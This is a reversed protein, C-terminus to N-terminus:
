ADHPAEDSRSYRSIKDALHDFLKDVNPLSRLRLLLRRATLEQEPTVASDPVEGEGDEGGRGDHFLLKAINKRTLDNLGLKKREYQNGGFRDDGLMKRMLFKLVAPDQDPSIERGGLLDAKPKPIHQDVFRGIADKVYDGAGSAEKDRAQEEPSPTRTDEIQSAYSRGGEGSTERDASEFRSNRRASDRYRFSARNMLYTVPDSSLHSDEIIEPRAMYEMVATTLADDAGQPDRHRNVFRKRAEGHYRKTFEGFPKMAADPLRQDFRGEANRQIEGNAEARLMADRFEKLLGMGDRHEPNAHHEVGPLARAFASLDRPPKDLQTDSFSPSKESLSQVSASALAPAQTPAPQPIRPQPKIALEPAQERAVAQAKASNERLRGLLSGKPAAAVPNTPAPAPAPLLETQGPLPAKQSAKVFSATAKDLASGGTLLSGQTKRAVGQDPPKLSFPSDPAEKPKPLELGGGVPGPEPEGGGGFDFAGQGDAPKRGKAYRAVVSGDLPFGYWRSGVHLVLKGFAVPIDAVSINPTPAGKPLRSLTIHPVWGHETAVNVGAHRFANIVHQRVQALGPVDLLAVLADNRNEAFASPTLRGLGSTRGTLPAWHSAARQTAALARQLGGIGLDPLRGLSCITVHLDEPPSGGQVAMAHAADPRLWFGCIVSLPDHTQAAYRVLDGDEGYKAMAPDQGPPVGPFEDARGPIPEAGDPDPTGGQGADGQAVGQPVMGGGYPLTNMPTIGIALSPDRPATFGLEDRLPEGDFPIGLMKLANAGGISQEINEQDVAFRFTLGFPLDQGKDYVRKGYSWKNLRVITAVLDDTLTEALNMADYRIIQKKTDAHLEAVKSGMGTAGTGTSLTQGLFCLTMIEDLYGIFQMLTDYAVNSLPIHDYWKQDGNANTPFVAINDRYLNALSELVAERAEHNGMPYKGIMAGSTSLRQLADMMYAFGEKQLFWAWYVRSRLGVGRVGGARDAGVLFESDMPDFTHILFTERLHKKRLVIGTAEEVRVCDEKFMEASPSTARVIIVPEHDNYRYRIKDGHVPLWDKIAVRPVGDVMKEGFALNIAYKGYWTASNLSNIMPLFRNGRRIIKSVQDAIASQDSDKPNDPVVSWKLTATPIQRMARLRLLNTDTEMARANEVSHKLAEDFKGLYTRSILNYLNAFTDVHGVKFREDRETLSPGEIPRSIGNALLEEPSHVSGPHSWTRRPEVRVVHHGADVVFSRGFSESV